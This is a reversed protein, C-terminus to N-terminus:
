KRCNCHVFCKRCNECAEKYRIAGEGCRAVCHCSDGYTKSTSGCCVCGLLLHIKNTWLRRM